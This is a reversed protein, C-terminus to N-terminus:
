LPYGYKRMCAGARQYRQTAHDANNPLSKDVDQKCIKWAEELSVKKQEEAHAAIGFAVIIATTACISVANRKM